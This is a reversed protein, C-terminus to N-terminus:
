VASPGSRASARDYSWKLGLITLALAFTIANAVVVPASGIQLGYVLWAFTGAAFVSFTTPSIEEAHRLRWLRVVQPVFAGTTGIAALSGVM